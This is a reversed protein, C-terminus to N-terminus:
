QGTEPSSGPVVNKLIQINSNLFPSGVLVDTFKGSFIDSQWALRDRDGM